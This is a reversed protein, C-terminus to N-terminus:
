IIYYGIVIGVDSTTGSLVELYLAGNKPLTNRHLGGFTFVKPTVVAYIGIERLIYATPTDGSAKDALNVIVNEAAASAVDLVAWIPVIRKGAGPAALVLQAGDAQTGHIKATNGVIKPLGGSINYLDYEM